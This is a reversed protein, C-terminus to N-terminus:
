KNAEYEALADALSAFGYVDLSEGRVSAACGMGELARETIERPFREGYANLVCNVLTKRRYAFAARVLGFFLPEDKVKVAPEDLLDFRVVASDVKPKPTFCGAPVTFLRKVEAYYSCLVTLSSYASTSSRACVREAFEKQVMLTFSSVRESEGLLKLIIPSTIYYPINACVRMKEGEFYTQSVAALDTQLFDGSIFTVGSEGAFSERLGPILDEDIEVAVVRKATKALERTLIGRGPGIELANDYPGIGSLAVIRRPIRPDTLFNQGFQKKAGKANM